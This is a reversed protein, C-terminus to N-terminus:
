QRRVYLAVARFGFITAAISPTIRAVSSLDDHLLLEQSFEYLHQVERRRVEALEAERRARTSLHSVLLSACLFVTLAVINQPDLVSFTGVPPLFFFNYLVACLVSLYVSYALRWRSAAILILVLFSLAVTTQNVHLVRRFLLTLALALLTFGSTRFVARRMRATNKQM